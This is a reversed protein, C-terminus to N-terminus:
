RTEQIIQFLLERKKAKLQRLSKGRIKNLYNNILDKLEKKEDISLKTVHIVYNNGEHTVKNQHGSAIQANLEEVQRALPMISEGM